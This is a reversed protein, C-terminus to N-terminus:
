QQLLLQIDTEVSDSQIVNGVSSPVSISIKFYRTAGADLAGLNQGASALASLKGSWIDSINNGDSDVEEITVDTNAGLEGDGKGPDDCTGDAVQEPENCGNEYEDLNPFSLILSSGDITGDNKVAIINSNDSYGPAVNSVSFHESVVDTGNVKLDLTGAEVVNGNSLETDSFIAYSGIGAIAAVTAITFVSM